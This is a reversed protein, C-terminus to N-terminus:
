EVASQPYFVDYPPVNKVADLQQLGRVVRQFDEKDLHGMERNSEPPLMIDRMRDLMWAQHTRNTIVHAKRLNRMTIDLALEPDAFAQQWGLLSAKVFARCVEPKDHLTQQLTYIGDEPFNLGYDSFFFTTLEDPDIGANLITHYENYWMASAVSVGGRLFLDVSYSQRIPTVNLGYKKFFLKPQVDSPPGWLGVKRGEMDGPKEIGSEKGAVLMQASRQVMQALNVVPVGRNYLGLGTVLWLSAFDAKKEQLFDAASRNPGGSILTVDLGYQRYLGTEQALYYGAFQAQPVWQTIFTINRLPPTEAASLGPFFLLLCCCLVARKICFIRGTM